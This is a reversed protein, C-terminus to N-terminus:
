RHRGGGSGDSNESPTAPGDNPPDSQEAIKKMRRIIRGSHHQIASWDWLSPDLLEPYTAAWGEARKQTNVAVRCEITPADRLDGQLQILGWGEVAYRWTHGDSRKSDLTIKREAVHGKTDPYHLAFQVSKQGAAFASEIDAILESSSRFSRLPQGYDSYAHFVVPSGSEFLFGALETFGDRNLTATSQM